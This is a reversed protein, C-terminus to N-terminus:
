RCNWPGRARPDKSSRRDIAILGTSKVLKTLKNPSLLSETTTTLSCLFADQFSVAIGSLTLNQGTQNASISTNKDRPLTSDNPPLRM